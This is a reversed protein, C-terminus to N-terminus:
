RMKYKTFGSSKDVDLIREFEKYRHSVIYGAMGESQVLNQITDVFKMISEDTISFDLVEDIWLFNSNKRIMILAIWICLDLKRKEGESLDDVNIKISGKYVHGSFDEKLEIKYDGDLQGELTRNIYRNIEPMYISMKFSRYGRDGLFDDKLYKLYKMKTSYKKIKSRLDSVLSEMSNIDVDKDFEKHNREIDEIKKNLEIIDKNLEVFNSVITSYEKQRDEVRKINVRVQSLNNTEHSLYNVKDNLSSEIKKLKRLSEDKDFNKLPTGCKSCEGIMDISDRERELNWVIKNLKKISDEILSEKSKLDRLIGRFDEKNKEKDKEIDDMISKKKDITKQISKILDDKNHRVAELNKKTTEIQKEYLSIEKEYRSIDEKINKIEGLSVSKMESLHGQNYFAEVVSRRNKLDLTMIPKLDTTSMCSFFLITEIPQGIVIEDIFQKCLKKSSLKNVKIWEDDSFEYIELLSPKLGRKVIFRKDNNYSEISVITGKGNIRNICSNINSKRYLSGSYCFKIAELITSKGAGNDGLVGTLTGENFEISEESNGISFFNKIKINLIGFKSM